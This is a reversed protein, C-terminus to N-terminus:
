AVKFIKVFICNSRVFETCIEHSLLNERIFHSDLEIHKTREYFVPNSAMHLAGQNDRYMKM